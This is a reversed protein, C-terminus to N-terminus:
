IEEQVIGNSEKEGKFLEYIYAPSEKYLGTKEDQLKEFIESTYFMKISDLLSKGTDEVIMKIIDQTNVEILFERDSM